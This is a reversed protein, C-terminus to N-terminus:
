QFRDAEDMMDIQRRMFEESGLNLREAEAAIMEDLEKQTMLGGGKKM